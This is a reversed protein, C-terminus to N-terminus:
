VDKKVSTNRKMGELIKIRTSYGHKKETKEFEILLDLYEVVSLCDPKLAIKTKLRENEESINKTQDISRTKLQIVHKLFIDFCKCGIEWFMQSLSMEADLQNEAFLASNTFKLKEGFHINSEDLSALVAPEAGDAFTLLPCINPEMDRGFLSVIANFVYRQPIKLREDLGKVVFCVADIFLM